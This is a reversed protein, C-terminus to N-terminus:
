KGDGGIGGGRSIGGGGGAGKNRQRGELQMLKVGFGVRLWEGYPELEFRKNVCKREEHGLRGCLYCFSLLREYHFDVWVNKGELSTVVEGRRLPKDILVKVRIRM